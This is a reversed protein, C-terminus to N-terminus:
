SRQRLDALPPVTVADARAVAGGSALREVLPAREVTGLVAPEGRGDGYAVSVFRQEACMDDILRQQRRSLVLYPLTHFHRFLWLLYVRQWFSPQVYRPGLPTLVRLVGIELKEIWM